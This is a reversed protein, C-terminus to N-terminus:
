IDTKKKHLIFIFLNFFTTDAIIENDNIIVVNGIFEKEAEYGTNGCYSNLLKAFIVDALKQLLLSVVTM